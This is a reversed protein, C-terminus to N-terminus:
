GTWRPSPTCSWAPWPRSGTSSTVSRRARRSWCSATSPSAVSRSRPPWRPRTPTPSPWTTAVRSWWSGSRPSSRNPASRPTPWPSTSWRWTAPGRAPRPPHDPLHRFSVAAAVPTQHADSLALDTGGSVVLIRAEAFLPEAGIEPDAMPLNVVALDLSGELLQPLLSTTTADVIVLDVGPHRQQMGALLSPVLWRAISGIM